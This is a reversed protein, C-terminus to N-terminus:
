CVVLPETVDRLVTEKVKQTETMYQYQEGLRITIHQDHYTEEGGIRTDPGKVSHLPSPLIM